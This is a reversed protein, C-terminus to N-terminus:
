NLTFRVTTTVTSAVARGAATAPRFRWHRLIWSRTTSDFEAHGSPQTIDVATPTGLPSVAIRVGVCGQLRRQRMAAPYPPKPASLYAPPSTSQDAKALAEAHRAISLKRNQNTAPRPQRPDPLNTVTLDSVCLPPSAIGGITFDFEQWAPIPSLVMPEVQPIPPITKPPSPQLPEEQARPPPEAAMTFLPAPEDAPAGHEGRQTALLPPLLLAPLAVLLLSRWALREEMQRPHTRM